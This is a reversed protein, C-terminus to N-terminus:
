AAYLIVLSLSLYLLPYLSLPLVGSKKTNAGKGHCVFHGCSLLFGQTGHEIDTLCANCIPLFDRTASSM